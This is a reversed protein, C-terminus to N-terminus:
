EELGVAKLADSRNWYMEWRVIRGERLVFVDAMPQDLALGSAKGRARQRSLVLVREGVPIFEQAGYRVEEWAQLWEVLAEQMAAVGRWTGTTALLDDPTGTRVFVVEPDFPAPVAFDGHEWRAYLARLIEVNQQSV